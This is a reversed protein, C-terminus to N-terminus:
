PNTKIPEPATKEHASRKAHDIADTFHQELNPTFYHFDANRALPSNMLAMKDAPPIDSIVIVNDPELAQFEDLQLVPYNLAYGPQFASHAMIGVLQDYNFGFYNYMFFLRVEEFGGVLAMRELTPALERLPASWTDYEKVSFPDFYIDRDGCRVCQTRLDTPLYNEMEITRTVRGGCFPCDGAFDLRWEKEGADLTPNEIRFGNTFYRRMEREVTRFLLDDDMASLNLYNLRGSRHGSIVQYYNRSYLDDLSDIYKGEDGVLGRKKALAYNRTGPYNITMAMPGSIKLELLLDITAAVDEAREDYHATLFSALVPINAEKVAGIFSRTESITLDKQVTKLLRDSGSEVGVNMLSCGADRMHSLVGPDVDMRMLCHWQKFPEVKKYEACFRIISEDDPFIIENMFIFHAFDYNANINNIEGIIHDLPRGRFSGNTPSCFTCRGSCGRGTMVPMTQFGYAKIDFFSWDPIWNYSKLDLQRRRSTKLVGGDEKRLAVGDVKEVPTGKDIAILLEPFTEEGEGIVLYDARTLSFLLPAKVDVTINGGMICPMYPDVAKVSEFTNKLWTYSGILGGCAVALYDNEKLRREMDLDTEIFGDVFDFDIDFRKLATVIYGYGIPFFQYDPKILLVRKSLFSM